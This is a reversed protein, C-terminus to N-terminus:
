AVDSWALEGALDFSEQHVEAECVQGGDITGPIAAGVNEAPVAAAAPDQLALPLQVAGDAGLGDVLYL